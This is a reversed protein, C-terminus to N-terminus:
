SHVTSDSFIFHTMSYLTHAVIARWQRTVKWDVMGPVRAIQLGNGEFRVLTSYKCISLHKSYRTAGAHRLESGALPELSALSARGCPVYRKVHDSVDRSDVHCTM